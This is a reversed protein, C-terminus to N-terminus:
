SLVVPTLRLMTRIQEISSTGFSHVTSATNTGFEEFNKYGGTAVHFLAFCALTNMGIQAIRAVTQRNTTKLPKDHIDKEGKFVIKTQKVASCAMIAITTFLATQIAFQTVTSPLHEQIAKPTKELISDKLDLVSENFDFHSLNPLKNTFFTYDM